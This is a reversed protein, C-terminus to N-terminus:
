ASVITGRFTSVVPGGHPASQRNMKMKHDSLAPQQHPTMQVYQLRNNVEIRALFFFAFM